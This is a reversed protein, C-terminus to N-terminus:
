QHPLSPSCLRLDTPLKCATELPDLFIIVPHLKAIAASCGMSMCTWLAKEQMQVCWGGAEGWPRLWSQGPFIVNKLQWMLCHGRLWPLSFSNHFTAPLCLPFVFMPLGFTGFMCTSLKTCASLVSLPSVRTPMCWCQYCALTNWAGDMRPCCVLEKKQPKQDSIWDWRMVAPKGSIVLRTRKYSRWFHALMCAKDAPFHERGMWKDYCVGPFAANNALGHNLGATFLVLIVNVDGQSGCWLWPPFLGKPAM